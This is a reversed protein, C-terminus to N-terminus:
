HLEDGDEGHRRGGGRGGGIVGRAGIRGGRREGGEDGGDSPSGKREGVIESGALVEEEGGSVALTADGKKIEAEAGDKEPELGVRNRFGTNLIEAPDLGSGVPDKGRDGAGRKETDPVGGCAAADPLVVNRRLNEGANATVWKIIPM